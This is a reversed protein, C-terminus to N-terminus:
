QKQLITKPTLDTASKWSRWVGWQRRACVCFIHRFTVNRRDRNSTVNNAKVIELWLVRLMAEQDLNVILKQTNM